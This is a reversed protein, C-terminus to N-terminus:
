VSHNSLHTMSIPEALWEADGVMIPTAGLLAAPIPMALM